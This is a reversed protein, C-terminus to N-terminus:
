QLNNINFDQPIQNLYLVNGPLGVSPNPYEPYYIFVALGAPIQSDRRCPYGRRNIAFEELPLLSLSTCAHPHIHTHLLALCRLDRAHFMRRSAGGAHLTAYRHPGDLECSM